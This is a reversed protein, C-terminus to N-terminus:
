KHLDTHHCQFHQPAALVFLYTSMHIFLELKLTCTYALYKSQICQLIQIPVHFELLILTAADLKLAESEIKNNVESRWM